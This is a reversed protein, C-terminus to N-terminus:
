TILERKSNYMKLNNLKLTTDSIKLTTLSHLIHFSGMVYSYSMGSDIFVQEVVEGVQTPGKDSRLKTTEDTFHSCKGTVNALTHVSGPVM